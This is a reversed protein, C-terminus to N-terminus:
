GISSPLGSIAAPMQPSISMRKTAGRNSRVAVPSWNSSRLSCASEARIASCYPPIRRLTRGVSPGVKAPVAGGRGRPRGEQVFRQPLLPFERMDEDSAPLWDSSLRLAAPPAPADGKASAVEVMPAAVCLFQVLQQGEHTSWDRVLEAVMNNTVTMGFGGPCDDVMSMRQGLLYTRSVFM